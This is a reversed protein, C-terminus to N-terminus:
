PKNGAYVMWIICSSVVNIVCLVSKIILQNKLCLGLNITM